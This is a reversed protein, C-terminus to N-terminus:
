RTDEHNDIDEVHPGVTEKNM